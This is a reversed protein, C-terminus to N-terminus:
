LDISKGQIQLSLLHDQQVSVFCDAYKAFAPARLFAGSVRLPCRSVAEPFQQVELVSDSPLYAELLRIVGLDRCHAALPDRRNRHFRLQQGRFGTSTSQDQRRQNKQPLTRLLCQVDLPARPILGHAELQV